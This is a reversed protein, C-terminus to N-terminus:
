LVYELTSKALTTGQPLIVLFSFFVLMFFIYNVKIGYSKGRKQGSKLLFNNNIFYCSSNFDMNM